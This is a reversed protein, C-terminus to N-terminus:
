IQAISKAPRIVLLWLFQTCSPLFDLLVDQNLRRKTEENPTQNSFTDIREWSWSPVCWVGADTDHLNNKTKIYSEMVASHQEQSPWEPNWFSQQKKESTVDGTRQCDLGKVVEIFDYAGGVLTSYLPRYLDPKWIASVWDKARFQKVRAVECWWDRKFVCVLTKLIDCSFICFYSIM